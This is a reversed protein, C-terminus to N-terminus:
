PVFRCSWGTPQAPVGNLGTIGHGTTWTFYVDGQPPATFSFRYNKSDIAEVAAAAVGNVRLDGADMGSVPFSFRVDATTLTDVSQGAQPITAAVQPFSISEVGNQFISAMNASSLAHDYLAVEDISGTFTHAAGDMRTGINLPATENNAITSGLTDIRTTTAVAAGDVYIKVGAATSSGDYTFAVHHWQDDLVDVSANVQIAIAPYDSSLLVTVSKADGGNETTGVHLEWGKRGEDQLMDGIVTSDQQTGKIWATASFAQSDTFNIATGASLWGGSLNAAATSAPAATQSIYSATDNWTMPHDAMEDAPSSDLKWHALLGAQAPTTAACLCLLLSRISM